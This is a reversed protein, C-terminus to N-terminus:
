YIWVFLTQSLTKYDNPKFIKLNSKYKQNIQFKIIIDVIIVSNAIEKNLFFVNKYKMFMNVNIVM